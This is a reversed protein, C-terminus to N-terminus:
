AGPPADTTPVNPLSRLLAEMAQISRPWQDRFQEMLVPLLDPRDDDIAHQIGGCLHGLVNAGINLAGGKLAHAADRLPKRDGKEALRELELARSQAHGVFDALLNRIFALDTDDVLMRIRDAMEPEDPPSADAQAPRARRMEGWREIAARLEDLHIPKTLFDSMGAEACRDQDEKLVGATLALITPAQGAPIRRQIERTADLGDMVPMNVDMLVLDFAGRVTADVAESGDSVIAPTYGLKKLLHAILKQNIENDEAVLIQLPLQDALLPEELAKRRERRESVPRGAITDAVHDLLDLERVPKAVIADFLGEPDDTLAGTSGRSSLLILPLEKRPHLRRIERALQLGDMEPMYMDLLALHFGGGARLLDLAEAAGHATVPLMGWQTVRNFLIDLNTRHDDVLLVKKGRLVELRSRLYLTPAAAAERPVRTRVTFSFVSGKGPESEVAISGGMLEVLRRSIVLGLGTGGFRRTTSSDVQTFPQFLHGIAEAPIGIGTDAVSIRMLFDDDTGSARVVRVLVHGSPTFKVANGILNLLIQRFRTVDGEVTRPMAPDVLYLLELSKERAKFSILDYIDEISAVLDFPRRELELKGSEIKSFDLIDNIITLLTEGSTRITEVYEAQESTLGTHRLVDTMGIVGNMPTRIEHSMVALFEGRARAAHRAAEMAQRLLVEQHKRETIDRYASLFMRRHHQEVLTTSILLTRREGSKTRIVTEVDRVSGTELVERLRDLGLQHSAEDPALLKSFDATANAEQRSYGTMKEMSRNFVEFYGREDSFTIGEEVTDVVTDLQRERRALALQARRETTIDRAVAQFGAVHDGETLLTVNQGLTLEQGVKTVVPIELYTTEQKTAAQHLYFRRTSDRADPRILDTYHRGIVESENFGFVRLGVGNVYSFRGQADTRYIIDSAAEVIERFLRENEEIVRQARRQDSIDLFAALAYELRGSADYIPAGSVLLPIRQGDRRIEVDDVTSREGALARVIPLRDSPYLDDTGAVFADYSATLGSTTTTTDIGRGLIHTAARNAFFPRGDGTLVFIGAPVLNLFAQLREEGARATQEAARRAIIERNLVGFIVLFLGVSFATGLVISLVTDRARSNTAEHRQALYRREIEELRDLTSRIQQTLFQGRGTRILEFSAQLGQQARTQVLQDFRDIRESLLPRLQELLDQQVASSRTLSDLASLTRVVSDRLHPHIVLFSPDGTIAFGRVEAESTSTLTRIVGILELNVHTRSVWEADERFAETAEFSLRGLSLLLGLALVVGITTKRDIAWRRRGNDGNM